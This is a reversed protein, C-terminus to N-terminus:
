ASSAPAVDRVPHNSGSPSNAMAGSDELLDRVLMDALLDALEDRLSTPLTSM